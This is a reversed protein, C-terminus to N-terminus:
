DGKIYELMYSMPITKKWFQWWRKGGYTINTWVKIVRFCENYKPYIDGIKLNLTKSDVNVFLTDGIKMPRIRSINPYDNASIEVVKFGDNM